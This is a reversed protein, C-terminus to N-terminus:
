NTLYLFSQKRLKKEYLHLGPGPVVINGAIELKLLRSEEELLTLQLTSYGDEVGTPATIRQWDNYMDVIQEFALGDVVIDEDALLDITKPETGRCAYYYETSNKRKFLTAAFGTSTNGQYSVVEFNKVFYEAQSESFKTQSDNTKGSLADKIRSEESPQIGHLLAYGAESLLSFDYLESITM